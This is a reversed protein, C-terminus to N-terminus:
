KRNTRKHSHKRKNKRNNISLGFSKRNAISSPLSLTYNFLGDGYPNTIPFSENQVQADAALAMMAYVSALKKIKSM